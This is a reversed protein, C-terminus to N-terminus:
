QLMDRGEKILRKGRVILDGSDLDDPIGELSEVVETLLEIMESIQRKVLTDMEIRLRGGRGYGHM